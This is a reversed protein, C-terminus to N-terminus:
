ASSSAFFLIVVIVLLLILLILSFTVLIGSNDIMKKEVMATKVNICYLTGNYEVVKYTISDALALKQLQLTTEKEPNQVITSDNSCATIFLIAILILLYKM